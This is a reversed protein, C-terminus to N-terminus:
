SFAKRETFATRRQASSAEANKTALAKTKQVSSKPSGDENKLAAKSHKYLKMIRVLRLIRVIRVIRGAKTGVRAGRGARMLQGLQSAEIDDVGTIQDWVWSIDFILSITAIVDLWFYFSFLYEETKAIASIVIEFVFALMSISTLLNFLWDASKTFFLLRLDDGFLAYITLATMVYTFIKHDLVFLM